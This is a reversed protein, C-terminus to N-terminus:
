DHQEERPGGRGSGFAPRVEDETLNGDANKDLKALSASAAKIESASITGSNDTDLAAFIADPRMGQPGGRPGEGRGGRDGGGDRRGTQASVKTLEEKTLFGDKNADARDFMGQMREPLEEKSIQGDGNKDFGLLTKVMEDNNGQGEPPGGPGRREEGPGGRREGGPGGRREGGPGGPGFNMRTEERSLQGDGDKDLKSLVKSANKLEKASITGDQDADLASLIPHMRMFGGPPGGPRDQATLAM